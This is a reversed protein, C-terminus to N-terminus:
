DGRRSMSSPHDIIFRSLSLGPGHPGEAGALDGLSRLLTSPTGGKEIVSVFATMRDFFALAERNGQGRLYDRWEKKGRPGNRLCDSLPFGGPTIWPQSLIHATEEPPYGLTGAEIVLSATKWLATESVKPGGQVTHPIRYRSFVEGACELRPADLSLGIEDWGPFPMGLRAPLEGKGARWLALNRALTELELRHDGAVVTLFPIPESPEPPLPVPTDGFLQTRADHVELGCEPM